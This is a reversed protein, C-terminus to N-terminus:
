FFWQNFYMLLFGILPYILVKLIGGFSLYIKKPNTAFFLQANFVNNSDVKGFLFLEDGSVILDEEYERDKKVGLDYKACFSEINSRHEVSTDTFRLNHVPAKYSTVTKTMISSSEDSVTFKSELSGSGKLLTFLHRRKNMWGWERTNFICYVCPTQTIPSLLTNDSSVTGQIISTGRLSAIKRFPTTMIRIDTFASYTTIGFIVLGIGFLIYGM